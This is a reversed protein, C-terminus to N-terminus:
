PPGIPSKPQAEVSQLAVKRLARASARQVMVSPDNTAQILAPLAPLANTGLDELAIASAYRLAEDEDALTKILAPLALVANSGFHQLRSLARQKMEPNTCSLVDSLLRAATPTRIGLDAVDNLAVSWQGTRRFEELIPDCDARNFPMQRLIRIATPRSSSGSDRLSEILAPVAPAANTGLM